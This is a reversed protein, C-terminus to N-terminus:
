AATTPPQPPKQAQQLVKELREELFRFPHKKKSIYVIAYYAAKLPPHFRYAEKLQRKLRNRDVAKRFNRKPVSFVAQAFPFAGEGPLVFLKFPYLFFSSGEKFLGKLVKESKIRRNKPFKHGKPQHSGSDPVM